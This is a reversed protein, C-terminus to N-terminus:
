WMDIQIYTNQIPRGVHISVLNTGPKLITGYIVVREVSLPMLNGSLFGSVMVETASVFM